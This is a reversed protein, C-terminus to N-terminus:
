WSPLTNRDPESFATNLRAFAHSLRSETLVVLDLCVPSSM